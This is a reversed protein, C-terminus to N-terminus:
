GNSTMRIHRYNSETSTIETGSCRATSSSASSLHVASITPMSDPKRIFVYPLISTYNWVNKVEARYPYACWIWAGAANGRTGKPYSTPPCWLQDASLDSDMGPPFLIGTLLQLSQTIGSNVVTLFKLTCFRDHLEVTPPPPACPCASLMTIEYTPYSSSRVQLYLAWSSFSDTIFTLCLRM